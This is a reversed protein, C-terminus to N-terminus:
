SSRIECAGFDVSSLVDQPLWERLIRRCQHASARMNHTVFAWEPRPAGQFVPELRRAGPDYFIGNM